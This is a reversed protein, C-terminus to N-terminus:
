AAVRLRAALKWGHSAFGIAEVVRATASRSRMKDSFRLLMNSVFAASGLIKGGSIQAIRKLFVNEIQPSDGDSPCIVSMLWERCRKAFRNGRKAAGVTNWAYGEACESLGARVPNSEVYAVCRRLYEVEGVLTSKFRGEWITGPFPNRKRFLRGFEEKFTKVFQSLDHMRARIRDLEAEAATSDGRERLGCIREELRLAAKGGMLACYRRLVEREPITETSAPVQLVVHFHNDMIAFSGVNVGSFEAARELADLMDCKVSDNALLM